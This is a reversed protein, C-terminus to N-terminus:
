GNKAVKLKKALQTNEHNATGLAKEIDYRNQIEANLNTTANRVWDEAVYVQQTVQTSIVMTILFASSMDYIYPIIVSLGGTTQAFIVKGVRPKFLTM